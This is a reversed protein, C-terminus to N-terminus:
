RSSFYSVQSLYKAFAMLGAPNLIKRIKGIYRKNPLTTYFLFLDGWGTVRYICMAGLEITRAKQWIAPKGALSLM